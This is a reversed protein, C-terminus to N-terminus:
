TMHDVLHFLLLRIRNLRQTFVLNSELIVQYFIAVVHPVTLLYTFPAKELYHKMDVKEYDFDFLSASGYM